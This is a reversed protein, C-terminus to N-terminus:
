HVAETYSCQKSARWKAGQIMRALDASGFCFRNNGLGLVWAIFFPQM